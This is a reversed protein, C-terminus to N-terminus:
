EYLYLIYIIFLFGFHHNSEAKKKESSKKKDYKRKWGNEREREGRNANSSYHSTILSSVYESTM